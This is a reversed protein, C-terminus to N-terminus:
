TLITRQRRAEFLVVAATVSANLSDVCGHMPISLSQVDDSEDSQWRNGLGNAENGIVVATPQVLDQRWIPQSSEVRMAAIQFGNSSLWERASTESATAFPVSFVAGLSSRIVNPNFADTEEPCLLIAGVGAADASRFVAGINGPKEFHDLVIVLSSTPVPLDAIPRTVSEFEAVAGRSSNGYGIKAMVHTSVGRISRPARQRVWNECGAISQEEPSGTSSETPVCYIGAPTLGAELARRIERWGDVLMRAERRRVRNNRLRLLHKITPNNTSTLVPSSMVFQLVLIFKGGGSIDDDQRLLQLLDM